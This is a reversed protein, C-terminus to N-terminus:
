IHILSLGWLSRFGTSNCLATAPTLRQANTPAGNPGLSDMVGESCGRFAKARTADPTSRTDYVVM